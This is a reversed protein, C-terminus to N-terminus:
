EDDEEGDWRAEPYLYGGDKIETSMWKKRAGCVPCYYFLTKIEQEFSFTGDEKRKSQSCAYKYGCKCRAYLLTDDKYKVIEWTHDKGRKRM